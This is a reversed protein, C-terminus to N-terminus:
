DKPTKNVVRWLMIWDCVFQGQRCPTKLVKRCHQDYAARKYIADGPNEFLIIAPDAGIERPVVPTLPNRTISAM